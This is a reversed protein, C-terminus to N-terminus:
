ESLSCRLYLGNHAARLRSGAWSIFFAWFSTFFGKLFLLGLSLSFSSGSISASFIPAAAPEDDEGKPPLVGAGLLEDERSLQCCGKLELLELKLELLELEPELLELELELELELNLNKVLALEPLELELELLELKRRELLDLNVKKLFDLEPLELELGKAEGDM